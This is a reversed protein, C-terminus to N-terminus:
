GHKKKREVRYEAPPERYRRYQQKTKIIRIDM